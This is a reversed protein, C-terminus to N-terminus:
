LRRGLFACELNWRLGDVDKTPRVRRMCLPNQKKRVAGGDTTVATQYGIQASMEVTREEWHPSLAPCPYSFHVIPSNLAQELRRKSEAFETHLDEDRVYAMNPHTMTHSGVIHGKQVLGRVQDWTMMPSETTARPAAQLEREIGKVFQEQTAGALQCCDDCAKLFARDREEFNKLPWITGNSENWNNKKTTYFAYRLRAPWPLKANEICDVTVYFTTPVGVQNLVPLAVEYNDAYGDDFTAVVSRSPLEKEKRVFHLVDDLSVPCYDRAILEMQDRFIKTSHVMGGLTNAERSPDDMVSHYMLIAVGQGNLQAALRTAGSAVLTRKIWNKLM